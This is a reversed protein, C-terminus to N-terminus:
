RIMPNSKALERTGKSLAVPTFKAAEQRDLEQQLQQMKIDSLKGELQLRSTVDLHLSDNARRLAEATASSERESSTRRQASSDRSVHASGGRSSGASSAGPMGSISYRKEALRRSM